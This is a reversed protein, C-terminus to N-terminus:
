CHIVEIKVSEMVYGSKSMICLECFDGGYVVMASRVMAGHFWPVPIAVLEEGEM